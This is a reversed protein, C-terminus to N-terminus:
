VAHEVISCYKTMKQRKNFVIVNILTSAFLLCFLIYDSDALCVLLLFTCVLGSPITFLGICFDLIALSLVFWDNTARLRTHFRHLVLHRPLKGRNSFCRHNTQHGMVLNFMLQNLHFLRYVARLVPLIQCIWSKEFGILESLIGTAKERDAREKENM